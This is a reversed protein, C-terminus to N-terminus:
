MTMDLPRWTVSTKKECMYSFQPAHGGNTTHVPRIHQIYQVIQEQRRVAGVVDHHVM